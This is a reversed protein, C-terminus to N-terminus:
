RFFSSVRFLLSYLCDFVGIGDHLEHIRSSMGSPVSHLLSLMLLRRRVMLHWILLRQVITTAAMQVVAIWRQVGHM